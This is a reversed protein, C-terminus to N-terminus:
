QPVCLLARQPDSHCADRSLRARVRQPDLRTVMGRDLFRLPIRCVHSKRARRFRPRLRRPTLGLRLLPKPSRPRLRPRSPSVRSLSLSLNPHPSTGRSSGALPYTSCSSANGLCKRRSRVTLERGVYCVRGWAWVWARGLRVEYMKFLGSHVKNWYQVGTAISHLQSSHEHFPGSKVDHIRMISMFYLNTPPLPPRLVASVPIEKQDTHM